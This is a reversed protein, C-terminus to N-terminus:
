AKKLSLVLVPVTVEAGGIHTLPCGFNLIPPVGCPCLYWSAMKPAWQLLVILNIIFKYTVHFVFVNPSKLVSM